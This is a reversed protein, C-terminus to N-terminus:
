RDKCGKEYFRLVRDYSFGALVNQHNHHSCSASFEGINYSILPTAVQSLAGRGWRGAVVKRLGDKSAM